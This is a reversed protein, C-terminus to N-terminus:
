RKASRPPGRGTAEQRAVRHRRVHQTSAVGGHASLHDNPMNVSEM